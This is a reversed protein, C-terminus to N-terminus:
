SEKRIGQIFQIFFVLFISIIFGTVFAVAVILSKKPKVPFDNVLYEGVIKTNSLNQETKKFSLTDIEESLQSIKTQLEINIKDELKRITENSVNLKQNQLNKIDVNLINAKKNELDKINVSSLNKKKNELDKIDVSSLNKKKNELNKIQITTINELEYKLNPITENVASLYSISLPSDADIM